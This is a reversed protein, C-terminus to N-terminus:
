PLAEVSTSSVRTRAIDAGDCEEKAKRVCDEPSDSDFDFLWKQDNSYTDARVWKGGPCTDKDFLGCPKPAGGGRPAGGCRCNRCRRKEPDETSARRTPTKQHVSM